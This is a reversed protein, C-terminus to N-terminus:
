PQTFLLPAPHIWAPRDRYRQTISCCGLIHLRGGGCVWVWLWVCVCVCVQNNNWTDLYQTTISVDITGNYAANITNDLRTLSKGTQVVLKTGVPPPPLPTGPVRPALCQPTGIVNLCQPVTCV